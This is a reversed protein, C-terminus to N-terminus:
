IVLGVRARRPLFDFAVPLARDTRCLLVLAFNSKYYHTVCGELHHPGAQAHPPLGERLRYMYM